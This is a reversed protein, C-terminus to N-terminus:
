LDQTGCWAPAVLGRDTRLELRELDALVPARPGALLGVWAWNSDGMAAVEAGLNQALTHRSALEGTGRVEFLRGRQPLGYAVGLSAAPPVSWDIIGPDRGYLDVSLVLAYFEAPDVGLAASFVEVLNAGGPRGFNADILRADDGDVIVESHFFGNAFGSRAVLSAVAERARGLATPSIRDDYPFLFVSETNGLKRRGTAGIFRLEGGAVFGELSVLEGVLREQVVLEEPRLAAPLQWEVLSPVDELEAQDLVVRFGKGGAALAPKVIVGHRSSRLLERLADRPPDSAHFGISRPVYEPILENVVTKSKIVCLAPDIGRVDLRRCLEACIELRSDLFTVVGAIPQDDADARVLRELADIDLTDVQLFRGNVLQRLADGEQNSVGTLFTLALELRLAAERLYGPGIVSSELVYLRKMM